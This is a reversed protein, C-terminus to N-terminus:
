FLASFDMAERTMSQISSEEIQFLSTSMERHRAPYRLEHAEKAGTRLYVRMVIICTRKMKFLQHM